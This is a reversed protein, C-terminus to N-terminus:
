WRGSPLACAPAPCGGGSSAPHGCLRRRGAEGVAGRAGGAQVREALEQADRQVLHIKHGALEKGQTSGEPKADVQSGTFGTGLDTMGKGGKQADIEGDETKAPIRYM